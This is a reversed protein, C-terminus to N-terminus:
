FFQPKRRSENEEGRIRKDTYAGLTHLWSKAGSPVPSTETLHKAAKIRKKKRTRAKKPDAVNM